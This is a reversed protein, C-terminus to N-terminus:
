DKEPSRRGLRIPMAVSIYFILWAVSFLALALNSHRASDTMALATAVLCVLAAM